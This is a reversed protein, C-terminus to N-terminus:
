TTVAERQLSTDSGAKSESMFLAALFSVVSAGTMLLAISVWSGSRGHLYVALLPAQSTALTGLTYGVALGTYRVRTPFILSYFAPMAGYNACYPIFLMIFSAFLLATSGSGIMPFWLWPLAGMGVVGALFLAKRGVKDSLWGFFPIGVTATITAVLIARLVLSKDLHLEETSYSISFITVVYFVTGISLYSLAMLVVLRAHTTLVAAIPLRAVQGTDKVQTFEPSEDLSIRIILGFVVLLGSILFPIRWGYSEFDQESMNALGLFVLNALMLGWASGTNVISSIFGRRTTPAHEVSMLVAGSYEGGLSFGQVFRLIVLLIPALTGVKEYTPLLGIMCTAGGMLTLTVVLLTKRGIRDGFHGFVAAGVPRAVFAISFTSLSLVTGVAPDHNPFFLKDFILAAAIGYIFFEYWEITTGILSSIVVRKPQRHRDALPRQAQAM